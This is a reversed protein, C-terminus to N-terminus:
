ILLDVEKEMLRKVEEFDFIQCVICNKMGLWRAFMEQPFCSGFQIIKVM